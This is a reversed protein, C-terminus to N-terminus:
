TDQGSAGFEFVQALLEASRMRRERDPAIDLVMVERVGYATCL